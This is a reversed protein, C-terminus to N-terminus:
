AEDALYGTERFRVSRQARDSTFVQGGVNHDLCCTYGPGLTVGEVLAACLVKGKM